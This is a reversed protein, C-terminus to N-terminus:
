RPYRANVLYPVLGSGHVNFRPDFTRFPGLPDKGAAFLLQKHLDILLALMYYCSLSPVGYGNIFVPLGGPLFITSRNFAYTTSLTVYKLQINDMSKLLYDQTLTNSKCGTTRPEIAVCNTIYYPNCSFNLLKEHWKNEM